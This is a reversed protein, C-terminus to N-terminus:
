KRQNPVFNSIHNEFYWILSMTANSMESLHWLLFVTGAREGLTSVKEDREIVKEINDKMIEKVENVQKKIRVLHDTEKDGENVTVESAYICICFLYHYIVMPEINVREGM